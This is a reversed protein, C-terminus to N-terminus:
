VRMIYEKIIAVINQDLINKEDAGVITVGCEKMREYFAIESYYKILQRGVNYRNSDRM